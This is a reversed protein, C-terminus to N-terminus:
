VKGHKIDTISMWYLCFWENIKPIIEFNICFSLLGHDSLVHTPHTFNTGVLLM